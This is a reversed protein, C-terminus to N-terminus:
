NGDEHLSAIPRDSDDEILLLEATVTLMPDYGHRHTAATVAADAVLWGPIAFEHEPLADILQEGRLVAPLGKFQLIVRHRKGTYSVSAWCQEGHMLLEGQGDALEIMAAILANGARVARGIAPDIESLTDTESM